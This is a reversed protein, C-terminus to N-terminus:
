NEELKLGVLLEFFLSKRAYTIWKEFHWYLHKYLYHLGVNLFVWDFRSKELDLENSEKRSLYM